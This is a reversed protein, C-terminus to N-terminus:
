MAPMKSLLNIVVMAAEGLNHTAMMEGHGEPTKGMAHMGMMADGSMVESLMSRANSLMMEGHEVSFTDVDGAMGMKGLMVMSSGQAAMDMAHNILLHQHHMAMMDDSVNGSKAMKDLLSVVVLMSEGLDHTYKMHATKAHEGKMMSMMEKGSLSRNIVAKGMNLMHHGHEHAIPDINPAMNMYSLMITNSGETVMSLGHAMMIHLHHMEMGADDGAMSGQNTNKGACGLVLLPLLLALLMLLSKTNKM